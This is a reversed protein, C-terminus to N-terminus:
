NDKHLTFDVAMALLLSLIEHEQNNIELVYTGKSNFAINLKMITNDHEDTVTFSDQMLNGVLSWNNFSLSLKIRVSLKRNIKGLKKGELYITAYPDLSSNSDLIIKGLEHSEIDYLCIRPRQFVPFISKINYREKDHQDTVTFNRQSSYKKKRIFLIYTSTSKQTISDISRTADMYSIVEHMAANKVNKVLSKKLIKEVLGMKTDELLSFCISNLNYVSDCVVIHM